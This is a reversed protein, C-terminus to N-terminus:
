ALLTGKSALVNGYLRQYFWEKAKEIRKYLTRPVINKELAYKKVSLQTVYYLYIAEAKEFAEIKLTNFLRNIEEAEPYHYPISSSSSKNENGLFGERQFRALSSEEPWGQLNQAFSYEWAAWHQLRMELQHEYKKFAM